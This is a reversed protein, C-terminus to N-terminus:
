GDGRAPFDAILANQSWIGDMINLPVGHNDVFQEAFWIDFPEESTRLQQLSTAPDISEWYIVLGPGVATNQLFVKEEVVGIAQRAAVYEEARNTMIEDFKAELDATNTPNLPIFFNFPTTDAKERESINGTDLVLQVDFVLEDPNDFDVGHLDTTMERWAIDWEQPSTAMLQSTERLDPGEMYILAFSGMPTGQLVTTQQTLGYRRRSSEYEDYRPGILDALADQWNGLEGADIPFLVAAQTLPESPHADFDPTDSGTVEPDPTEPEDVEPGPVALQDSAESEAAATDTSTDSGCAVVALALALAAVFSRLTSRSNCSTTVGVM